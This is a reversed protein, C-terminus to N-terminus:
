CWTTARRNAKSACGGPPSGCWRISGIPRSWCPRPPRCRGTAARVHALEHAMVIRIRDPRGCRHRPPCCSTRASSGWTGLVSPQDTQLIAPTSRLGFQRSMESAASFWPGGTVRTARSAIWSLRALGVLLVILGGAGTIWIIPLARMVAAANFGGAAQARASATVAPTTDDFVALPRDILRLRSSDFWRASTQWAPAIFRVAPTAAACALAAALVFHRIAASRRRLVMTTLLAVLVILSIKITTNLLLTM